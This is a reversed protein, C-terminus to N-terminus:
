LIIRTQSFNYQTTNGIHGKLVSTEGGLEYGLAPQLCENWHHGSVIFVPRNDYSDCYPM